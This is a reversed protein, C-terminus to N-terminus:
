QHPHHVRVSVPVTARWLRNDGDRSTTWGRVTVSMAARGDPLTLPQNHLADHIGRAIDDCHYPGIHDSWVQVRVTTTVMRSGCAWTAVGPEVHVIVLYPFTAASPVDDHIPVDQRAAIADRVALAVSM